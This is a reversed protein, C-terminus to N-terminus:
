RVISGAIRYFKKSFTKEEDSGKGTTVNVEIQGNKQYGVTLLM